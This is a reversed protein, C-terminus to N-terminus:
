FSKITKTDMQDWTISTNHYYFILELNYYLPPVIQQVAM